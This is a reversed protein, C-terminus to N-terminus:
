EAMKQCVHVADQNADYAYIKVTPIRIAFGIAYYGEACGVNIVETYEQRCAEEIIHQIEREYSGILKPFLARGFSDMSSYKMGKFPGHRVILDPCIVNIAKRSSKELEKDKRVCRAYDVAPILSSNLIAWGFDNLVLARIINKIFCKLRAYKVIKQKM